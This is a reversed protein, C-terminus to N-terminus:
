SDHTHEKQKHSDNIVKYWWAQFTFSNNGTPDKGRRLGEQYANFAVQKFKEELEAPTM